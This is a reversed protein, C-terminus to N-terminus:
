SLATLDARLPGGLIKELALAGSLVAADQHQGGLVQLGVPLAPGEGERALGAAVTAAPMRTMNMPLTMEVWRGTQRGLVIGPADHEPPLCPCTAGLLLSAGHRELTAELAMALTTCQDMARAYDAGSVEDMGYAVIERLEPDIADWDETGRYPGLKRALLASWLTWWGPLPHEPFPGAVEVVEIGADELRQRAAALASAVPADLEAFGLTPAWLVKKPAPMAGANAFLGPVAPLSFIDRPHPGQALALALCTGSLDYTMPGRVALTGTTPPLEDGLPLRGQSAKFGSHGSFAAPIRISGGGDSGTALPVLGAALAASSGGSSGGPSRELAFPNRCIGHRPNNTVGKCGFEPTMTKGVVIAGAERLRSVLVSDETAPAHGYLASGYTSLLGAADELDKVGLPMGALPPLPEGRSRAEDVARAEALVAERPRLETFASLSPNLQEIRDLTSAMLAEASREGKAVREAWAKLTGDRYDM